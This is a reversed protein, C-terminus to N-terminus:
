VSWTIAEKRLSEMLSEHLQLHFSFKRMAYTYHSSMKKGKGFVKWCQQFINIVENQRDALGDASKCKFFHKDQFLYTNGLKM